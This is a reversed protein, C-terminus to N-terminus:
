GFGPPEAVLWFALACVIFGIVFGAAFALLM